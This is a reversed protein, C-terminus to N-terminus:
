KSFPNEVKGFSPPPSVWILEREAERGCYSLLFKKEAGCSGLSTSKSEEQFYGYESPRYFSSRTLLSIGGSTGKGGAAMDVAKM